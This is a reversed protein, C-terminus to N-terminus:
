GLGRFKGHQRGVDVVGQGGFQMGGLTFANLHFVKGFAIRLHFDGVAVRDLASLQGALQGRVIFAKSGATDEM